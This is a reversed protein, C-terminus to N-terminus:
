PINGIHFNSFVAKIKELIAQNKCVVGLGASHEFWGKSYQSIENFYSKVTFEPVCVDHMIVIGNNKDLYKEWNTFDAKVNDYYHTGDIHVLDVTGYSWTTAVQGFEGRILTIHNQLNHEDIFRELMPQHNDYGYDGPEWLDIGYIQQIGANAFVFLSYGRDVGLEVATKIGCEKVLWEAFIRHGKWASPLEEIWDSM